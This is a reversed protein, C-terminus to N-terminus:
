EEGGQKLHNESRMLDRDADVMGKLLGNVDYMPKWALMTKSKTPNYAGIKGLLGSRHHPHRREFLNSAPLGIQTVVGRGYPKPAHGDPKTKDLGSCGKLGAAQAISHAQDQISVEEDTGAKVIDPQDYHFM